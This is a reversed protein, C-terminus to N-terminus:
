RLLDIALKAWLLWLALCGAVYAGFRHMVGNYTVHIVSHVYRLAVFIWAIVLTANDVAGIAHAVLTAAYFLVPVEFLNRFNDAARTDPLSSAMQSASAVKQPHIRLARMQTSREVYMRLWIVVTLFVMALDPLFIARADM